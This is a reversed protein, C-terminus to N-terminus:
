EIGCEPPKCAPSKVLSLASFEANKATLGNKTQNYEVYVEVSVGTILKNHVQMAIDKFPEVIEATGEIRELEENWKAETIKGIIDKVSKGHDITLPKGILTSFARKLEKKPYFVGNFKGEKLAKFSFVYPMKFEKGLEEMIAEPVDIKESLEEQDMAKEAEEVRRKIVACYASARKKNWKKKAITARVCQAFDKYGAFPLGEPYKETEEEKQTGVMKAGCKPCVTSTCPVGPKHAVTMECKPCTCKAPGGIGKPGGVGQGEGRSTEEISKEEKNMTVRVFEITEGVKEKLKNELM